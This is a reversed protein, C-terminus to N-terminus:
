PGDQAPRPMTVGGLHLGGRARERQVGLCCGAGAMVVAASPLDGRSGAYAHAQEAQLAEDSLEHRHQRLLCAAEGAASGQDRGTGSTVTGAAPKM